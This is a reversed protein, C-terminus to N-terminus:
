TKSQDRKIYWAWAIFLFQFPLRILAANHSGVAPTEKFIDIIHLPLFLVMAWFIGQTAMPRTQPLFVGVGLLIEIIGVAYNIISEPLFDPIFAYYMDPTRFHAVGGMIMFAGFLFTLGLKLYKM